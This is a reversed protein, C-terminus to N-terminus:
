TLKIGSMNDIEIEIKLHNNKNVPKYFCLVLVMDFKSMARLPFSFTFFYKHQNTYIHGRSTRDVFM